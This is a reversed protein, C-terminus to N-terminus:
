FSLKAVECFKRQSFKRRVAKLQNSEDRADELVSCMDRACGKIGAESFQTESVMAAPWAPKQKLLKNSLLVAAAALQSPSYRIMRYDVLTLELLYQMMFRHQETCGNLRTYRDLFHCSTPTCLAFQLRTLMAVETNLIDDKTYANDTIYVFDRVEPPYIEEFKAAILMATVGCLQLRKRPVQQVELYRDILSVSLFLTETKLKYKTQVGVLWDVLIGRMRRNLDAQSDMYAPRPLRAAEINSLGKFIDVTYEAVSQPDDDEMAADDDTEVLWAANTSSASGCTSITAQSQHSDGMTHASPKLFSHPQAALFIAKAPESPPRACAGGGVNTIDSLAIAPASARWAAQAEGCQKPARAAVRGSAVAPAIAL